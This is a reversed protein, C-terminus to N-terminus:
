NKTYYYSATKSNNNLDDKKGGCIVWTETKSLTVTCTCTVPLFNKVYASEWNEKNQM